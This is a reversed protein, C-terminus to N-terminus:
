NLSSTGETLKHLLSGLKDGQQGPTGLEFLVLEQRRIEGRKLNHGKGTLLLLVWCVTFNIINVNRLPEPMGAPILMYTKHDCKM